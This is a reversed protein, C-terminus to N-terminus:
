LEGNESSERVPIEALADAAIILPGEFGDPKLNESLRAVRRNVKSLCGDHVM